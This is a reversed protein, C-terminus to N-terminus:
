LLLYIQLLSAQHLTEDQRRVRSVVGSHPVSCQSSASRREDRLYRPKSLTSDLLILFFCFFSCRIFFIFTVRSQAEMNRDLLQCQCVFWQVEYQQANAQLSRLHGSTTSGDQSFRCSQGLPLFVKKKRRAASHPTFLVLSLSIVNPRCWGKSFIIKTAPLLVQEIDTVQITDNTM